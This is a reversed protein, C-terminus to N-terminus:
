HTPRVSRHSSHIHRSFHLSFVRCDSRLARSRGPHTGLLSYSHPSTILIGNGALRALSTTQRVDSKQRLFPNSVFAFQTGLSFITPIALVILRILTTKTATGRRSCFAVVLFVPVAVSVFFQYKTVALAGLVIALWFLVTRSRPSREFQTALFLAAAVLAFSLNDPQVYSSVLTTLPFFGTAAVLAVSTWKLVGINLATRYCFFLGVMMLFVCLLRASFFMAVLSNTTSAVITEDAAELAYFGFPYSIYSIKGSDIPPHLTPAGADLRRFYRQSGYGRPARMSSHFAIRFYDTAGLLYRTYPTAIWAPQRDQKSILHRAAFIGTAYDYHAAEDTAQFIPVIFVWVTSLIGAAVIIAFAALDHVKLRRNTM